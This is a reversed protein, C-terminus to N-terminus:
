LVSCRFGLGTHSWTHWLNSPITGRYFRVFMAPKLITLRDAEQLGTNRQSVTTAPIPPHHAVLLTGHQTPKALVQALWDDQEATLHGYFRGVGHTDVGIIRLGHVDHVTDCLEPGSAIKAPNFATGVSNIPDHNGGVAIFPIGLHDQFHGFYAAADDHVHHNRQGIDGSLIVADPSFTLAQDLADRTRSPTDMVDRLFNVKKWWTYIPYNYSDIHRPLETM